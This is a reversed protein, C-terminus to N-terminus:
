YKEHGKHVCRVKGTTPDYEYPEGGVPCKYFDQGLKTEEISQPFTNEVPDTNISISSRVQGINSMCKADKGRYMSQGILTEGKGDARATSNGGMFKGGTVFFVTALILVAVAALMGVLSNGRIRRM